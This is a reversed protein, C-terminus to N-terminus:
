RGLCRYTNCAKLAALSTARAICAPKFDVKGKTEEARKCVTYCSDQGRVYKGDPCGHKVLMSCAGACAPYAYTGVMPGDFPDTVGEYLYPEGESVDAGADASPASADSLPVIVIPPEVIPPAACCAGLSHVALSLALFPSLKM